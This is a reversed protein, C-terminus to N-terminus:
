YRTNHRELTERCAGCKNFPREPHRILNERKLWIGCVARYGYRTSGPKSLRQLDPDIAHAKRGNRAKVWSIM